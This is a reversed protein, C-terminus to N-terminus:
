LGLISPADDFGAAVMDHRGRAGVLALVDGVTVCEALARGDIEVGGCHEDILGITVVVALSDWGAGGGADALVTAENVSPVELIAAIGELLLNLKM